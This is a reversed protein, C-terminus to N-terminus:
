AQQQQESTPEESYVREIADAFKEMIPKRKLKLTPTLEGSEVSWEDPLILFKKVQEWRGFNLNFNDIDKQVAEVVKPHNVMIDNSMCPIDNQECYDRMYEFNPSILAAPHKRNEGIVMVHEIFRSEKFKNEIIQPAVYKGGSTKFMEKKRDTIKLYEGDVLEGIDGTHFWGDKDIVEDTLEPSKYYGMMVNPGKACIEGDDAIKIEVNKLPRGTTGIKLGKNEFCNVSLVPSTETLGYGELLPIGAGNFIRALRPNLSASGSVVAQVNGGLAEQWKKFILKRAISLRLEYWAGNAGYPEYREALGVAWFFLSRKIGTLEYGKAMIKDFVKELLRPVATFVNPKIERLNDGITDISEAYYVSVGTYFYLYLIMREYIHCLPLFSLATAEQDVPMRDMSGLVNSVVNKHTLMVGKPRGTTGSTYILTALETADIKEKRLDVEKQISENGAQLVETWHTVSDLEDFSYIAELTPVENQIEQVKQILEEDAAFAFKVGAHNFIYKYDEASITPYIPVDIGGAQLVGLDVINWEPRNPSVIAVKDGPKLGLAILGRSFSNVNDVVEQTSQKVWKGNVKACLCDENPYNELQHYLLDFLRFERQSM